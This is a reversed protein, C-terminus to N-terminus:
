PGGPADSGVVPLLAALLRGLRDIGRRDLDSLDAKAQAGEGTVALSWGGEENRTVWRRTELRGLKRRVSERAVGTVDALRTASMWVRDGAAADGHPQDRQADLYRQGLVALIMIEDLDGGISKRCDTLHEALFQVLHYQVTPYNALLAAGIADRRTEGAPSSGSTKM